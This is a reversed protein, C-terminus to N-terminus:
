LLCLTDLLQGAVTAVSNPGSVRLVHNVGSGAIASMVSVDPADGVGIVYVDLGAQRAATGASTFASYNFPSDADTVVIVVGPVSPSGNDGRRAGRSSVFM